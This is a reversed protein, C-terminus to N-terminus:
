QLESLDSIEPSSDTREGRFPAPVTTHSCRLASCTAMCLPDAVYLHGFGDRGLHKM